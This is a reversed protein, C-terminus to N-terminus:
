IFENALRKHNNMYRCSVSVSKVNSAMQALLGDTLPM